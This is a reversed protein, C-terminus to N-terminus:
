GIFLKSNADMVNFACIGIGALLIDSIGVRATAKFALVQCLIVFMLLMAFIGRIM